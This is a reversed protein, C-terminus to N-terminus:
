AKRRQPIPVTKLQAESENAAQQQEAAKRERKLRAFTKRLDTQAAPTYVFEKSLISKV